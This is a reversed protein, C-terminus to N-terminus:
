KKLANIELASNVIANKIEPHRKEMSNVFDIVRSKLNGKEGVKIKGGMGKIKAYLQIEKDLCFYLPKICSNIKPGILGFQPKKRIVEFIILCAEDDLSQELAIKENKKMSIERSTKSISMGNKKCIDKLVSFIIQGKVSKCLVVIKKTDKLMSYKRIAKLIKKEFYDCFCKKCFKRKNTLEYVPNKECIHCM